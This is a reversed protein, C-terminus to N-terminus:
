ILLALAGLVAAVGMGAFVRQQQSAGSTTTTSSSGSGTASATGTGTAGKSGSATASGSAGASAPAASALNKVSAWSAAANTAADGQKYPLYSVSGDPALQVLATISAAYRAGADKTSPGALQTTSNNEVNIVYTASGDDPIFAFEQQVGSSQFFSATQGHTAPFGTSGDSQPYAQADPQFFSFHIVFIQASGAPVGPVNLFHVHNQALAMVPDYGDADFGAKEVDTWAIASGNASTLAGMDLFFLEGAGSLAYFVNTDHDLVAKYDASPDFTGATVSQTSWSKATADYIHVSSASSADGNLVYIANYFQALYCTTNTGDFPPRGSATIESASGSTWSDQTGANWDKGDLGFALLNFNADFTVCPSARVVRAALSFLSLAAVTLPHTRFM